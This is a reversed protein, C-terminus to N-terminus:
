DEVFKVWHCNKDCTVLLQAFSRIYKEYLNFEVSDLPLLVNLRNQFKEVLCSGEQALIQLNKEQVNLSDVKKENKRRIQLLAQRYIDLLKFQNNFLNVDEDYDEEIISMLQKGFNIAESFQGLKKLTHSIYELVITIQMHSKYLVNKLIEYAKVLHDVAEILQENSVTGQQFIIQLGQSLLQNGENLKNSLKKVNLHNVAGCRICTLIKKKNCIRNSSKSKSEEKMVQEEEEKFHVKKHESRENMSEISGNEKEITSSADITQVTGNNTRQEECEISKVNAEKKRENSSLDLQSKVGKSSSQCGNTNMKDFIPEEEEEEKDEVVDLQSNYKRTIKEMEIVPGTCKTCKFANFIPESRELCPKCNCKFYYNNLLESQRYEFSHYKYFLGYSITLENIPEIIKTSLLYLNKGVFKSVKGNPDCSHNVMATALFLGCGIKHEVLHPLIDNQGLPLNSSDYEITRYTIHMSNVQCRRIHESLINMIKYLNEIIDIQTHDNLQDLPGISSWSNYKENFLPFKKRFLIFSLIFTAKEICVVDAVTPHYVLQKFHEYSSSQLQHLPMVRLNFNGIDNSTEFSKCTQSKKKKTLESQPFESTDSYIQHFPVDTTVSADADNCKISEHDDCADEEKEQLSINKKKKSREEYENRVVPTVKINEGNKEEEKKEKEQYLVSHSSVSQTSNYKKGKEKKSGDLKNICIEKSPHPSLYDERNISELVHKLGEKLVVRLTMFPSYMQGDFKEILDIYQCEVSHFSNWAVNRCRISCFVVQSCTFCPILHWSTNPEEPLNKESESDFDSENVQPGTIRVLCYYCHNEFYKSHLIWTYAEESILLKSEDLKDTTRVERGGGKDQVHYINLSPHVFHQCKDKSLNSVDSVSSPSTSSNDRLVTSSSCSIDQSKEGREVQVEDYKYKLNSDKTKSKRNVKNKKQKNCENQKDEQEQSQQIQKKKKEVKERLAIECSM